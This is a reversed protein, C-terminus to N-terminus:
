QFVAMWSQLRTHSAIFLVCCFFQFRATTAPINPPAITQLTLESIRDCTRGISDNSKIFIFKSHFCRCIHRSYLVWWFLNWEFLNMKRPINTEYFRIHFFFFANNNFLNKNIHRFNVYFVNKERERWLIM